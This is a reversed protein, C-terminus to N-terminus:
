ASSKQDLLHKGRPMTTSYFPNLRLKRHTNFFYSKSGGHSEILAGENEAIYFQYQENRQVKDIIIDDPLYSDWRGIEIWGASWMENLFPSQMIGKCSVPSNLM